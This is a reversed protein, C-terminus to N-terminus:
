AKQERKVYDPQWSALEAVKAAYDPCAAVMAEAKRVGHIVTAHDRDLFDGIQPYSWGRRRLAAYLAFRAERAGEARAYGKVRATPVGFLHACRLIIEPRM